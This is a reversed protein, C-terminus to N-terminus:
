WGGGLRPAPNIDQGGAAAASRQVDFASRGDVGPTLLAGRIESPTTGSASAIMTEINTLHRLQEASMPINSAWAHVNRPAVGFLRSLQQWTLGSTTHLRVIRDSSQM